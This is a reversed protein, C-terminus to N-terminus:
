RASPRAARRRRDARVDPRARGRNPRLRPDLNQRARELRQRRVRDVPRRRRRPRRLGRRYRVAHRRRDRPRATAPTSTSARRTSASRLHRRRRRPISRTRATASSSAVRDFRSRSARLRRRRRRRLRDRAAPGRAAVTDDGATGTIRLTGSRSGPAATPRGRRVRARRLQHQRAQPRRRDAQRVRPRVRRGRARRRAAPPRDLTVSGGFLRERAEPDALLGDRLAQASVGPVELEIADVDPDRPPPPRLHARVAAPLPPPHDRRDDHLEDDSVRDVDFRRSREFTLEDAFFVGDLLESGRPRGGGDDIIREVRRAFDTLRDDLRPDDPDTILATNDTAFIEADSHAAAAPAAAALLALAAALSRLM